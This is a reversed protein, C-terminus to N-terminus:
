HPAPSTARAPRAKVPMGRVREQSPRGIHYWGVCRYISMHKGPHLKRAAARAKKRTLYRLKGCNPCRGIATGIPSKPHEKRGRM